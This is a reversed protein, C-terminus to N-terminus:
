GQARHALERVRALIAQEDRADEFGLAVAVGHLTVTNRLMRRLVHTSLHTQDLVVGIPQGDRGTDLALTPAPPTSTTSMATM